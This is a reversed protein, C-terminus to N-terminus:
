KGKEAKETANKLLSYISDISKSQMIKELSSTQRFLKMLEQLLGVQGKPDAMAILFVLSVKLTKSPDIMSQVAIPQKLTAVSVMTKNVFKAETHPIGVSMKKLEIGTPFGKERAIVQKPYEPVVFKKDILKKAMTTITDKFDVTDLNPYIFEKDFKLQM